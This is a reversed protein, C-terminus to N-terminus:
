DEMEQRDVKVYVYRGEAKVQVPATSGPSGDEVYQADVIDLSDGNNATDIAWAQLDHLHVVVYALRPEANLEALLGVWKGTSDLEYKSGDKKRVLELYNPSEADLECKIKHEAPIGFVAKAQAFVERKVISHTEVSQLNKVFQLSAAAAASLKANAM